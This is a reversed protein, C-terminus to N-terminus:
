QIGLIITHQVDAERSRPPKMSDMIEVEDGDESEIYKSAQM